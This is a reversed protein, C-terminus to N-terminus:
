ASAGTLSMPIEFTKGQCGNPAALDMSVVDAISLVPSTSDAAVTLSLGTAGTVTVNAPPCATADGPVTNTIAGGPAMSTFTVPYPNTNTITFSVDGETTGPYLDATGSAANVTLDVATVAGARGSGSGSSTWVAYALGGVAVALLAASAALKKPTIRASKPFRVM